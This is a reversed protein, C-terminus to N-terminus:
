AKSGWRARSMMRGHESKEESTAWRWRNLRGVSVAEPTLTQRRVREELRVVEARLWGAYSRWSEGPLRDRM